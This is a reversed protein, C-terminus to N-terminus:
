SYVQRNPHYHDSVPIATSSFSHLQYNIGALKEEYDRKGEKSKCLLGAKKMENRVCCPIM